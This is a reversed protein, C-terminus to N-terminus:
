GGHGGPNHEDTKQGGMEQVVFEIQVTGAKEFTLTAAFREDKVAPQKLGMFMFHFSGPKLVAQGGAPIEIGDALPRMTMVGKADVSMEHIESKESIPSSIAVLRDAVSGKNHITVYGAGVRAGDPTARAWPHVIAIDGFKYDHAAAPLALPSLLFALFLAHARSIMNM